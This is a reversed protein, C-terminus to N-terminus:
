GESICIGICAKPKNVLDFVFQNLNCWYLKSLNGWKYRVGYGLSPYMAWSRPTSKFLRKNVLMFTRHRVTLSGSIRIGAKASGPGAICKEQIEQSHHRHSPSSCSSPDAGLARYPPYLCGREWWCCRLGMSVLAEEPRLPFVELFINKM